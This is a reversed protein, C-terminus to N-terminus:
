WEGVAERSGLWEGVKNAREYPLFFLVLASTAALGISAAIQTRHLEFQKSARYHHLLDPWSTRTQIIPRENRLCANVRQKAKKTQPQEPPQLASSIRIELVDMKEQQV